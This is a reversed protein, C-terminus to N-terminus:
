ILIGSHGLCLRERGRHAACAALPGGAANATLAANGCDNIAATVGGLCNREVPAFDVLEDVRPVKQRRDVLDIDLAALLPNDRAVILEVADVVPGQM